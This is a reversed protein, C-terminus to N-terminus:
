RPRSWALSRIYSSLAFYTESKSFTGLLNKIPRFLSSLRYLVWINTARSVLKINPNENVAFKGKQQLWKAMEHIKPLFYFDFGMNNYKLLHSHYAPEQPIGPNKWFGLGPIRLFRIGPNKPIELFGWVVINEPKWDRENVMFVQKSVKSWQLLVYLM